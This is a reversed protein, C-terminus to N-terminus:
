MVQMSEFLLFVQEKGLIHKIEKDTEICLLQFKLAPVIKMNLFQLCALSDHNTNLAHFQQASNLCMCSDSKGSIKTFIVAAVQAQTFTPYQPGHSSGLIPTRYYIVFSFNCKQTYLPLDLSFRLFAVLFQSGVTHLQLFLQDNANTLLMYQMVSM